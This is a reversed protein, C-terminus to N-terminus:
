TRAGNWGMRLALAAIGIGATIFAAPLYILGAGIAILVVALVLLADAIWDLRM